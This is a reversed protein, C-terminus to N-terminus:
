GRASRDRADARDPSGSGHRASHGALSRHPTRIRAASHGTLREFGLREELQGEIEAVRAALAQHSLGRKLVALLKEVNLPKVQFDYAGQRMAAVAKEIKAGATIVVACVEPNREIARKLVAMGDIRQVQLETVVCDVPGEDLVNFAGEGDRCWVVELEHSRLFAILATTAESERDVVLVVPKQRYMATQSRTAPRRRPARAAPRTTSM